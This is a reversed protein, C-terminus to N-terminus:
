QQVTYTARKVKSFNGLFHVMVVFLKYGGLPQMCACVHHSGSKKAFRMYMSAIHLNAVRFACLFCCLGAVLMALWMALSNNSALYM